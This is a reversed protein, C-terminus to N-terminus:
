VKKYLIKKNRLYNNYRRDSIRLFTIISNKYGLKEYVVSLRLILYINANEKAEIKKLIVATDNHNEDKFIYTPDEVAQKLYKKYEIYDTRRKNKVHEMQKVTLIVDTTAINESISKFKNRDIKGIHRYGQEL